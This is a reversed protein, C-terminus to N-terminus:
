SVPLWTGLNRRRAVEVGYASLWRDSSEGLMRLFKAEVEVGFGRYGAEPGRPRTVARTRATEVAEVHRELNGFSRDLTEADLAQLMRAPTNTSLNSTMLRTQGKLRPKGKVEFLATAKVQLITRSGIDGIYDGIPADKRLPWAPPPRTVHETEDRLHARFNTSGPNSPSSLYEAVMQFVWTEDAELAACARLGIAVRTAALPNAFWYQVGKDQIYFRKM